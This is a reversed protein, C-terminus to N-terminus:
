RLRGWIDPAQDSSLDIDLTTPYHRLSRVLDALLRAPVSVSEGRRHAYPVLAAAADGMQVVAHSREIPITM